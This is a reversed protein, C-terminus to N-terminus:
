ADVQEHTRSCLESVFNLVEAVAEYLHKPIEENLDLWQLDRALPVNRMTPVNNAVAESIIRKALRGVGKAIVRPAEDKEDDYRLAVAIHAPNTIVVTAEPVRASAMTELTEQHIRKREYKIQPDGEQQIHEKKVEYKSMRMSKLFSHRQWFFDIIAILLFCLLVGLVIKVLVHAIVTLAFSLDVRGLRIISMISVKVCYFIVSLVMFFKAIQKLLEILRDKSFIKKIGAIPDIKKVNFKIPHTSFLFGFQALNFIIGGLSAMFLMPLSFFVWSDFAQAIHHSILGHDITSMGESIFPNFLGLMKQLVSSSMTILLLVACLLSGFAAVDNSKAVQGKKRAQQLKHESPAETKESSESSM